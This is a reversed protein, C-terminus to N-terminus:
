GDRRTNLSTCTAGTLTKAQPNPDKNEHVDRPAGDRGRPATVAAAAAAASSLASPAAAAAMASSLSRASSTAAGAGGVAGTVGGVIAAATTPTPGISARRKMDCLSRRRSSRPSYSERPCRPCWVIRCEDSLMRPLTITMARANVGAKELFVIAQTLELLLQRPQPPHLRCM